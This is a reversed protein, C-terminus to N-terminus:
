LSREGPESGERKWFGCATSAKYPSNIFGRNNAAMGIANTIIAMIKFLM